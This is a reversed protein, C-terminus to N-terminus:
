AVFERPSNCPPSGEKCDAELKAMRPNRQSIYPRWAHLYYVSLTMPYDDMETWGWNSRRHSREVSNGKRTLRSGPVKRIDFRRAEESGSKNTSSM